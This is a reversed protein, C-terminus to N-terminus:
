AEPLYRKLREAAEAYDGLLDIVVERVSTERKMTGVVQGAPISLMDARKARQIRAKSLYYLTNQLPPLLHKPAGPREWAESLKSRIM